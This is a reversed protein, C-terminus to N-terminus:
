RIPVQVTCYRYSYDGVTIDYPMEQQDTHRSTRTVLVTKYLLGRARCYLRPYRYSYSYSYEFGFGYWQRVAVKELADSLYGAVTFEVDELFM